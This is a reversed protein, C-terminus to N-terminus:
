DLKYRMSDHFYISVLKRFNDMSDAKIYIRYNKSNSIQITADKKKTVASHTSGLRSGAKPNINYEPSLNDIYFQERELILKRAESKSLGSIDIYELISLSFKSYGHHLLARYIYM